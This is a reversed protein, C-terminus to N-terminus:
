TTRAAPPPRRGVPLRPDAKWAEVLQDLTTYPSGEPVVIAEAEEILRAIPTTDQLTAESKNTYVAGVVGLGMQM